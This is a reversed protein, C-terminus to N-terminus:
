SPWATACVLLGGGVRLIPLSIGFLALVNTGVLMSALIVYFSNVSVQRALRQILERDGGATAILVPASSFPNIIPLLTLPVLILSNVFPLIWELM